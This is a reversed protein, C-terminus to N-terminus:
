DNPCIQRAKQEQFARGKGGSRAECARVVAVENPDLYRGAPTEPVFLKACGDCFVPMIIGHHYVRQARAKLGCAPCSSTVMPLVIPKDNLDIDSM